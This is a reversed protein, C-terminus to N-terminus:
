HIHLHYNFIFYPTRHTFQVIFYYKMKFSPEINFMGAGKICILLIHWFATPLEVRVHCSEQSSNSELNFNMIYYYIMSLYKGSRPHPIVAGKSALTALPIEGMPKINLNEPAEARWQNRAGRSSCNITKLRLRTSCSVLFSVSSYNTRLHNLLLYLSANLLTHFSHM